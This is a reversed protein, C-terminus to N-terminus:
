HVVGGGRPQDLIRQFEGTLDANCAEELQKLINNFEQNQDLREDEAQVMEFVECCEPCLGEDDEGCGEGCIGIQSELNDRHILLEEFQWLLKLFEEKDM